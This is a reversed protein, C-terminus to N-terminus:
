NIRFGVGRGEERSVFNNSTLIGEERARGPNFIRLGLGVNCLYELDLKRESKFFEM